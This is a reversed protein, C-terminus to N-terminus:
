RRGPWQTRRGPAGTKRNAAPRRRHRGCLARQRNAWGDSAGFPARASRDDPRSSRTVVLLLKASQASKMCRRITRRGAKAPRWSAKICFSNRAAIVVAISTAHLLKSQLLTTATQSMAAPVDHAPATAAPKCAALALTMGTTIAALKAMMRVMWPPPANECLPNLPPLSFGSAHNESYHLATNLLLFRWGLHRKRKNKTARPPISGGVCPNEVIADCAGPGQCLKTKTSRDAQSSTLVGNIASISYNVTGGQYSAWNRIDFSTDGGMAYVYPNYADTGRSRIIVFAGAIAHFQLRIIRADWLDSQRIFLM